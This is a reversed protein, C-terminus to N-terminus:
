KKVALEFDSMAQRVSETTSETESSTSGSKNSASTSNLTSDDSDQRTAEGTNSVTGSTTNTSGQEFEISTNMTQSDTGSNTTESTASGSTNTENSDNSSTTNARNSDQAGSAYTWSQLSPNGITGADVVSQPYDSNVIRNNTTDSSTRTDTVETETSNTSSLNVKLGHTIDTDTDNSSSGTQTSTNTGSSTSNLTNSETSVFERSNSGTYETTNSTNENVVGNGQTMVTDTLTALADNIQDWLGDANEIYTKYMTIPYIIRSRFVKVDKSNIERNLFRTTFERIFYEWVEHKDNSIVKNMDNFLFYVLSPIADSQIYSEDLEVGNAVKYQEYISEALEYLTQYKISDQYSDSWIKKPQIETWAPM